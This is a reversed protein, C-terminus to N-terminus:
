KHKRKGKGRGKGRKKGYGKNVINNIGPSKIGLSDTLPKVINRFFGIRKATNDLGRIIKNGGTQIGIGPTLGGNYIANMGTNSKSM